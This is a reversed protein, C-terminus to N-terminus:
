TDGSDATWTPVPTEDDALLPDDVPWDLAADFNILIDLLRMGRNQGSSCIGVLLRGTDRPVPVRGTQDQAPNPRWPAARSTLPRSVWEPDRSGIYAVAVFTAM